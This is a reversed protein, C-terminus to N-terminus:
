QNRLNSLMAFNHADLWWRGQQTDTPHWADPPLGADAMCKPCPRGRDTQAKTAKWHPHQPDRSCRWLIQTTDPASGVLENLDPAPVAEGLRGRHGVLPDDEAEVKPTPAASTNQTPLEARESGHEAAATALIRVRNHVLALRSQLHLLIPADIASGLDSEFDEILRQCEGLHGKRALAEVREISALLRRQQELMTESPPVILVYCRGHGPTVHNRSSARGSRPLGSPERPSGYSLADLPNYESALARVLRNQRGLPRSAPLRCRM